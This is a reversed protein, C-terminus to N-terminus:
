YYTNLWHTGAEPIGYLAKVIHLVTDSPLTKRIERPPYAFITKALSTSSQVYAQSVDKLYLNYEPLTAVLSLILRQSARQITPSQALIEKKGDNAFAQVV